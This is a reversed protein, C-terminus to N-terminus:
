TVFHAIWKLHAWVAKSGNHDNYDDDAAPAM